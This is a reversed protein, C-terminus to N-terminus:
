RLRKIRKMLASESMGISAAAEKWLAGANHM